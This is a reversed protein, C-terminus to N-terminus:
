ASIRNNLAAPSPNAARDASAARATRLHDFVRWLLMGSVMAGLFVIAMLSGTPAAALAPGPCLGALGWGAGFMASGAILEPTIDRRTPVRFMPAFVPAARRMTRRFAIAYVGVAGAMVFLLSPDWAGTFDLFGVIKHPQTMGALALGVSFVFGSLFIVLRSM